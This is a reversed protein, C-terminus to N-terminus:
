PTSHAMWSEDGNQRSPFPIVTFSHVYEDTIFLMISSRPHVGDFEHGLMWHPQDTTPPLPPRKKGLVSCRMNNKNTPYGNWYAYGGGGLSSIWWAKYPIRRRLTPLGITKMMMGPQLVFHSICRRSGVWHIKRGLHRTHTHNPIRRHRNNRETGFRDPHCALRSQHLRIYV